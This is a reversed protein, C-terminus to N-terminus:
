ATGADTYERVSDMLRVFGEPDPQFGLSVPEAVGDSFLAFVEGNNFFEVFVKRTRDSSKFTAGIGGEVSPKLRTPVIGKKTATVLFASATVIARDSPPPALYGDWGHPLRRYAFLKSFFMNQNFLRFVSVDGGEPRPPDKAIKTGGERQGETSFDLVTRSATKNSDDHFRPSFNVSNM